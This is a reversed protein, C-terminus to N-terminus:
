KGSLRIFSLPQSIELNHEFNFVEITPPAVRNNLCKVFFLPNQESM